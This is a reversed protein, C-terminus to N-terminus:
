RGELPATLGLVYSPTISRSVGEIFLEGVPISAVRIQLPHTPGPLKETACTCFGAATIDIDVRVGPFLAVCDCSQNRVSERYVYM